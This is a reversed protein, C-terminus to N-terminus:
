DEITTQLIREVNEPATAPIVAEAMSFGADLYKGIQEIQDVREAQTGEETPKLLVVENSGIDGGSLLDFSHTTIIVQRITDKKRQLKSIFEPLQKIIATHLYLEPEELLVTERGDLLVWMFGILRLTGDSFQTEQQKAGKARWHIYVAELHPIGKIDKTFKLEKLQPVAFHLVENIRKIHSNRTRPSIKNMRDLLNRGYYDEKNTSIMYSEADRVLQPVIHLYRTEQFFRYVDRFKINSTIQELHTFKLTEHDEGASKENRDLVWKNEKKSWVKEKVIAAQSEFIGGGTHKFALIYKWDPKQGQAESLHVEIEVQTKKRASLCRIKSVGGREEVAHQLGGARKVIDRLFRIVDVLNSKGSANPGIIFVRSELNVDIGRFNRWNILKLRSIYM